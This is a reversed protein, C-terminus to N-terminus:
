KVFIVKFGDIIKDNITKEKKLFRFLGSAMLRVPKVAGAWPGSLAIYTKIYKNKWSTSMKNLLYLIYPNGMSHGILVVKSNKNDVYTKEILKQLDKM